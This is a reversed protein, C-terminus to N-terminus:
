SAPYAVGASPALKVALGVFAGRAHFGLGFGFRARETSRLPNKEHIKISGSPHYCASGSCDPDVRKLGKPEQWDKYMWGSTGILLM